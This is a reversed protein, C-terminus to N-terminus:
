ELINETLKDEPLNIPYIKMDLEEGTKEIEGAYSFPVVLTAGARGGYNTYGLVSGGKHEAKRALNYFDQPEGSVMFARYCQNSDFMNESIMTEGILLLM